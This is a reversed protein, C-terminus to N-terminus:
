SLILQLGDLVDGDIVMDIPHKEGFYQNKVWANEDPLYDFWPNIALVYNTRTKGPTPHTVYPRHVIDTNWAYWVGPEFTYRNDNEIEIGYSNEPNTISLNIRLEFFWSDDRHWLFKNIVNATSQTEIYRMQALRSRVPSRKLRDVITKLYGHQAPKTLTNFGWTDSYTDLNIRQNTDTKNEFRKKYETSQVSSIINNSALFDLMSHTGEDQAIQWTEKDLGSDMIKHYLGFDEVFLGDPANSRPFGLTQALPDIDYRYNKNYTLSLGGYGDFRQAKSGFINFFGHWGFQTYADEVSNELQQIDLQTDKFQYLPLNNKPKMNEIYGDMKCIDKLWYHVTKYDPCDAVYYKM